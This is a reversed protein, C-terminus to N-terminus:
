FIFLNILIKVVKTNEGHIARSIHDHVGGTTSMHTISVIVKVSHIRQPHFVLVSNNIPLLFTHFLYIKKYVKVGNFSSSRNLQRSSM